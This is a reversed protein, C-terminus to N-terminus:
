IRLGKPRGTSTSDTNVMKMHLYWSEVMPIMGRGADDCEQRLAELDIGLLYKMTCIQYMGHGVLLFVIVMKLNM